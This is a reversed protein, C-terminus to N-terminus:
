LLFKPRCIGKGAVALESISGLHEATRHTFLRANALRPQGHGIRQHLM